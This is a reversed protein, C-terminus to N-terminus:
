RRAQTGVLDWSGCLQSLLAPFLKRLPQLASCVCGPHVPAAWGTGFSPLVCPQLQVMMGTSVAASGWGLAAGPSDGPAAPSLGLWPVQSPAAAQVAPAARWLHGRLSPNQCCGRCNKSDKCEEQVGAGTLTDNLVLTPPISCDQPPWFVSIFGRAGAGPM